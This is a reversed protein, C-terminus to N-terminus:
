TMGWPSLFLRDRGMRPLQNASAKSVCPQLAHIITPYELVIGSHALARGITFMVIDGPQPYEVQRTYKAIIELYRERDKHLFWGTPFQALDSLNPVSIGVTQYVQVLFRGCDVGVGKIAANDHFPTGIWSHAEKQVAQRQQYEQLLPIDQATM